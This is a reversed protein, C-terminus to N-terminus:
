SLRSTATPNTPRRKQFDDCHIKRRRQIQVVVKPIGEEEMEQPSIAEYVSGFSSYHHTAVHNFSPDSKNCTYLLARNLLPGCIHLKHMCAFICYTCTTVPFTQYFLSYHRPSMPRQIPLDTFLALLSFHTPSTPGLHCLIPLPTTLLHIIFPIDINLLLRCYDRRPPPYDRLHGM